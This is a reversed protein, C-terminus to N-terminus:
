EEPHDQGTQVADIDLWGHDFTFTRAKGAPDQIRVIRADKTGVREVIYLWYAEGHERACDFQIHSVGVPRDRLTGTMAKVECWRIPAANADLECLDFGPNHTSTSQWQHERSLILEIARAELAMRAPQDLGDPDPENDDPVTAVYSIFPRGGSGGPTRKKTGGDGSGNMPDGDKGDGPGGASRGGDSSSGSGASTEGNVTGLRQPEKGSPDTIPPTPDPVTGLLRKLADDVGSPGEPDPSGQAEKIGLRHLDAVSTVGLRKLLELVGPELGAEKALQDILPPKFCIKSLLFPNPRWGLTDFVVFEPLQLNGNVDPVWATVNLRRVFAADFAHSRPHVYFWRYYGSFAGAGQGELDGLADWLMAARATRQEPDLNELTALLKDLGRLSFDELTEAGSSSECGGARRMEQRELPTFTSEIRVPQLYRSAGCALLLDRMPEGRLCSYSDDILMVDGVGAFLDRLRETALYVNGPLSSWKTGDDPKVARVFASGRLAVILKERQVKSDTSFAALIRRIDAEYEEQSALARKGRHKPLVNWIVDDVPDSPTLGLDILFARAVDTGCVARRVTPFDTVIPAPLFAQPQGDRTPTVHSGDELRILPVDKFRGSRLLAPQGQLFEYLRLIWMDSQQELFVQTLKALIIPPTVENIGLERTVYKHLEPTRDETIGGSLWLMEGIVDFVNALQAPDFLERLEQSRAIKASGAAAYSIGSAPLLTEVRLAERVAVFLPAFLRGEDFKSPDLPLTRLADVNLLGMAKLSRLAEVLLTATEQALHQNWRDDRPVNDRSPTTRYPGQVLLGLHTEVVTPFFVVLHSDNVIQVSWQDLEKDKEVSFGIEIRGVVKGEITRADRSFLLWAEEVDPSGHEEGLLLIRRAGQCIEEANGRVYLGGSGGAVEWAIEEIHRLFLLTRPGLKRLGEAIEAHAKVDTVDLPLIFVTEDAQRDIPSIATPWVFNEIAFDEAGSHVEPRQTFAYVSKFGIGFRGIATLDKTSDGIGCIGRVHATDFPEGCHTVRLETATLSFQVARSGQWGIRRSLADEANQLLEFIFHTRNDYRNTLLDPGWRGIGAGYERENDARILAYDSAM